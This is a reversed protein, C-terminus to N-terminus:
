LADHFVYAFLEFNFKFDQEEDEAYVHCCQPHIFYYKSLLIAHVTKKDSNIHFFLHLIMVHECHKTYYM